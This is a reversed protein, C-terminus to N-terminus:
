RGSTQSGYFINTSYQFINVRPTSRKITALGNTLSTLAAASLQHHAPAPTTRPPVAPPVQVYYKKEVTFSTTITTVKAPAAPPQQPALLKHPLVPSDQALQSATM